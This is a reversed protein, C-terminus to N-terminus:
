VELSPRIEGVAWRELRAERRGVVQMVLTVPDMSGIGHRAAYGRGGGRPELGHVGRRRAHLAAPHGELGRDGGCRPWEVAAPSSGLLFAGRLLLGV